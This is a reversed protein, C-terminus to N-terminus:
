QDVPDTRACMVMCIDEYQDVINDPLDTPSIVPDPALAVLSDISPEGRLGVDAVGEDLSAATVWATYGEVDAVGVPMVGLSVLNEVVGWELGVVATAPADLTIEEGRADTITIPGSAADTSASEGSTTSPSNDEVSGCAALTMLALAFLAILRSRVIPTRRVLQLQEP